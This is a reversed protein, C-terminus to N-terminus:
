RATPMSGRASAETSDKRDGMKTAARLNACSASTTFPVTCSFMSTVDGDAAQQHDPLRKLFQGQWGGRHGLVM